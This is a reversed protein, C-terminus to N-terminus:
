KLNSLFFVFIQGCFLKNQGFFIKKVSNCWNKILFLIQWFFISLCCKRQNPPRFISFFIKKSIRSKTSVIARRPCLWSIRLMKLPIMSKEINKSIKRYKQIKVMPLIIHHHYSPSSIIIIIIIHDRHHSTLSIIIIIHHYHYSSLSIIIITHYHHYSSLSVLIIIHHHHYSSLSIIIIIGM